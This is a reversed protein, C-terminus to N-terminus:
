EVAIQPRNGGNQTKPKLEDTKLDNCKCIQKKQQQQQM